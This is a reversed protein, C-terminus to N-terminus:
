PQCTILAIARHAIRGYRTSCIYELIRNSSFECACFLRLHCTGRCKLIRLLFLINSVVAEYIFLVIFTITYLTMFVAIKISGSTSLRGRTITYGKGMLILMLLFVLMSTAEFVRGAPFFNM